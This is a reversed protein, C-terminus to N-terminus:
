KEKITVEFDKSPLVIGVNEEREHLRQEQDFTDKSNQNIFLPTIQLGVPFQEVSSCCAKSKQSTALL